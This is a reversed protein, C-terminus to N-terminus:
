VQVGVGFEGEDRLVLVSARNHLRENVLCRSLANHSPPLPKRQTFDHIGKVFHSAVFGLSNLKRHTLKRKIARRVQLRLKQLVPCKGVLIPKLTTVVRIDNVWLVHTSWKAEKQDVIELMCYSSEGGSNPVTASQSFFCSQALTNPDQSCPVHFHVDDQSGRTYLQLEQWSSETM